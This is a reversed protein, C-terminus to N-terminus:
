AGIYAKSIWGWKGTNPGSMVKGYSWKWDKNCYETFLSGKAVIGKSYYGTGPGNRLNVTATTRNDQPWAWTFNCSSSGVASAPAATLVAGGFAVLVSTTIAVARSKVRM